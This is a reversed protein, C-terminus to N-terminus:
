NGRRPRLNPNREMWDVARRMPIRNQFCPLGKKIAMRLWNRGRKIEYAFEKRSMFIEDKEPM